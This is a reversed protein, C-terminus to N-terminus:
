EDLLDHVKQLHKDDIHTYIQTTTISSHGLLSQVARIDAWKRILTTAFSHRLTHPTVRKRIGALSAYRRVIEEISNRSLRDGFSNKSLSIFIFESDDARSLLYKKLKERAQSTMFVARMKSGKWIVHFQKSDSKINTKKLSILETVRLWTGYLFRLIAEDRAIQLPNKWLKSPMELVSKVEIDELYSVERAPIKSLELKDPSICDLDNKLLFKLFSRIAVIHYNITKMSLWTSKLHIRFDLAHMSKIKEIDIDWIYESFRNLWLSYNEITKPSVNKEYQLYFIYKEILNNLNNYNHM